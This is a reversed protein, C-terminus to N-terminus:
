SEEGGLDSMLAYPVPRNCFSVELQGRLYRDRLDAVYRERAQPDSPARFSSCSAFSRDM